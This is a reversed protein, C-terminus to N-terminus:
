LSFGFQFSRRPSPKKLEACHDLQKVAPTFIVMDFPLRDVGWSEAYDAAANLGEEVQLMGVALVNEDTVPTKSNNKLYPPVGRDNRVHGIGAVLVKVPKDSQLLSSALSADRVRQALAMKEATDQDLLDCHSRKIESTLDALLQPTLPTRELMSRYNQPLGEEGQAVLGMLENRNLNAADVRFGAALTAAFVTKYQNEYDWGTESKNLSDILEDVSTTKEAALRKGQQRDIMEFAVSAERGASALQRIIRAQNQHHVPNHHLEGLLLYEANTIRQNFGPQDIYRAAKVDWVKGALQHDAYLVKGNKQQMTCATLLSFGLVLLLSGALRSSKRNGTTNFNTKLMVTKIKLLATVRTLQKSFM